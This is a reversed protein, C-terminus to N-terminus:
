TSGPCPAVSEPPAVAVATVLAPQATRVPAIGAPGAAAAAVPALMHHVMPTQMMPVVGGLAGPHLWQSPNGPKRSLVKTARPGTADYTIEFVVEDGVNLQHVEKRHAFVDKGHKRFLEDCRIFGFGTNNNFSKVTGFYPGQGAGRGRGTGRGSQAGVAVAAAAVPLGVGESGPAAAAGTAFVPYAAERAISPPQAVAVGLPSQHPVAGGALCQGPYQGHFSLNVQTTQMPIPVYYLQPGGAMQFQQQQQQLQLQQQQM